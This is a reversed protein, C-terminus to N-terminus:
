YHKKKSKDRNQRPPPIPLCAVKLHYHAFAQSLEFRKKTVYLNPEFNIKKPRKKFEEGLNKKSNEIYEQIM